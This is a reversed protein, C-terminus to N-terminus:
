LEDESDSDSETQVIFCLPEGPMLQRYNHSLFVLKDVNSPSLRARRRRVIHGAKSFARESPVSTAPLALLKRALQSLTPFQKKNEAWWSYANTNLPMRVVRRYHAIEEAVATEKSLRNPQKAALFAEFESLKRKKAVSTQTSEQTEATGENGSPTYELAMHAVEEIVLQQDSEPLFALDKFRPDLFSAIRCLDTDDCDALRTQIAKKLDAAVVKAVHKQRGNTAQLKQLLFALVPEVVSVSPQREYSLLKTAELFPELVPVLEEMSEWESASPQLERKGLTALVSTVAAEQEVLRKVMEVTSNWRTAVAQKLSVCPIQLEKQKERLQTTALPSRHFFSVINRCRGLVKQVEPKKLGDEVCLNLTHAV